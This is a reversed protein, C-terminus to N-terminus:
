QESLTGTYPESTTIGDSWLVVKSYKGTNSRSIVVSIPQRNVAEEPKSAQALGSEAPAKELGDVKSKLQEVQLNLRANETRAQSMAATTKRNDLKLKEITAKQRANERRQLWYETTVTVLVVALLAITLRCILETRNIM